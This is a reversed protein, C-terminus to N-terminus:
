GVGLCSDNPSVCPSPAASSWGVAADAGAAGAGLKADLVHHVLLYERVYLLIIVPQGLMLSIWVAANGYDTGKLYRRSPDPIWRRGRRREARACALM